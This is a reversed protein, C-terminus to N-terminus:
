KPYRWGLTLWYLRIGDSRDYYQFGVDYWSDQELLPTSGALSANIGISHGDFSGLDSDTTQFERPQPLEYVFYRTAEQRYFRYLPELRINGERFHAFYRAELTHGTLDWSDFYHSYGLQYSDEGVARKYRVSLADRRRTEPLSEYDFYGTEADGIRVANFSTALFGEQHTHSWGFHVLSVPTLSQAWGLNLTTTRRDEDEDKTGDFRVMRVWDDFIQLHASLQTAQEAFSANWGLSISNSLYAYERGENIGFSLGWHERQHIWGLEILYRGPNNGTAGSVTEANGKADDYSAASVTDGTVKAQMANTDNLRKRYLWIGEYIAADEKLYPNGGKDGSQHDDQQYVIGRFAFIDDLQANTPEEAYLNTAMFWLVFLLWRTSKLAKFSPAVPNLVRHPAHASETHSMLLM